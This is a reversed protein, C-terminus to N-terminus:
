DSEQSFINAAIKSLALFDRAGLQADLIATSLGTITGIVNMADQYEDGTARKALAIAERATPERIQVEDIRRPGDLLPRHLKVIM